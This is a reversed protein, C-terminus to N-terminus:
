KKSAIIEAEEVIGLGQLKYFCNDTLHWRFNLCVYNSTHRTHENKANDFNDDRGM